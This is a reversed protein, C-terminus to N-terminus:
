ANEMIIFEKKKLVYNKKRQQSMPVCTTQLSNPVLPFEKDPSIEKCEADTWKKICKNTQGNFQKNNSICYIKGENFNMKICTTYNTSKNPKYLQGNNESICIENTKKKTCKDKYM